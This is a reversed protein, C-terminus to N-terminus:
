LLKQIKNDLKKTNCYEKYTMINNETKNHQITINKQMNYHQKM